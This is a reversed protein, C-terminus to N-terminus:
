NLKLTIQGNKNKTVNNFKNLISSRIHLKSAIEEKMVETATKIPAAKKVIVMNHQVLYEELLM